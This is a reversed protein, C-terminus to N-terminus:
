FPIADETPGSVQPKDIVSNIYYNRFPRSLNSPNPKTRKTVKVTAGVIAAVVRRIEDPHGSRSKVGLGHLAGKLAKIAGENPIINWYATENTNFKPFYMELFLAPSKGENKSVGANKIVAVHDNADPVPVYKGGAAAKAPKSDDVSDWLAQVEDLESM